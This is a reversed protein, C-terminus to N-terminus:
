LPFHLGVGLYEVPETYFQGYPSSGRYAAMLVSWRRGADPALFDLGARVSWGPWQDHNHGWWKLDLGAVPRAGGLPGLGFLDRRARIELGGHLLGIGLDRPERRFLLEGGGYLRLTGSERSVMAEFSEFSLNIRPLGSDLLFEDGLHSSQHYLRMRFSTRGRRWTVPIGIVYDANLLDLSHRELDFQAFVGGVLGVQMGDGSGMGGWRVLGINVGLAAAGVTTNRIASGVRAIGALSEAEKPDALLPRFIDGRPFLFVDPAAQGPLTEPWASSLLVALLARRCCRV